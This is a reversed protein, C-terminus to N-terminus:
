GKRRENRASANSNLKVYQAFSDKATELDEELETITAQLKQNDNRLAEIDTQLAKINATFDEKQKSAFSDREELRRKLNKIHSERMQIVTQASKTTTLLKKQTDEHAKVCQKITDLNDEVQAKLVGIQKTKQDFQEELVTTRDQSAM